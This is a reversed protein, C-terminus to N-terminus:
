PKPPEPPPQAGSPAGPTAAPTPGTPPAACAAVFMAVLACACRMSRTMITPLADISPLWVAYFEVGHCDGSGDEENVQSQVALVRDDVAHNADVVRHGSRGGVAHRREREGVQGVYKAHDLEVCGRSLLAQLRDDATVHPERVVALAVSRM